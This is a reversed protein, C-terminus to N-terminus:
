YGASVVCSLHLTLVPANPGGRGPASGGVRQKMLPGIGSGHICRAAAMGPFANCTASPRQNTPPSHREFVNGKLRLTAVPIPTDDPAIYSASVLNSPAPRMRAARCEPREGTTVM